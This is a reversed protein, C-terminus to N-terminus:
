ASLSEPMYGIPKGIGQGDFLIADLKARQEENEIFFTQQCIVLDHLENESRFLNAEQLTRFNSSLPKGNYKQGDRIVPKTVFFWTLVDNLISHAEQNTQGSNQASNPQTNNMAIVGLSPLSYGGGVTSFLRTATRLPNEVGPRPVPWGKPQGGRVVMIFFARCLAQRFSPCLFVAISLQPSKEGLVCPTSPGVAVHPSLAFLIAGRYCDTLGIAILDSIKWSRSLNIQCLKNTENISEM